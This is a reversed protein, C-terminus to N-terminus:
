WTRVGMEQKENLEGGGFKQIGDCLLQLRGSIVDYGRGPMDQEALYAYSSGFESNFLGYM